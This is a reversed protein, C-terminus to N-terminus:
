YIFHAVFPHMFYFSIVHKPDLLPEDDKHRPIASTGDFYYNVNVGDPITFETILLINSIRIAELVISYISITILSLWLSWQSAKCSKTGYKYPCRCRTTHWAVKRLEKGRPNKYPEWAINAVSENFFKNCETLPIRNRILFLHSDTENDNLVIFLNPGNLANLEQLGNM